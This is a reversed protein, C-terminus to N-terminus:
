GPENLLEWRRAAEMDTSDATSAQVAPPLGGFGDIWGYCGPSGCACAFAFGDDGWDFRTYDCTIEDGPSLDVIAIQDYRLQGGPDDQRFVSFTTPDCAHNLLCGPVDLWRTGDFRVTHHPGLVIQEVAGDIPVRAMFSHEDDTLTIIDARYVVDGARVPATVYMGLGRRSRRVETGAHSWVRGDLIRQAVEDTSPEPAQRPMPRAYLCGTLNNRPLVTAARGTM